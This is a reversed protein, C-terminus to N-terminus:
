MNTLPHYGYYLKIDDKSTPEFNSRLFRITREKLQPVSFGDYIVTGAPIQSWKLDSFQQKVPLTKISKLQIPAALADKNFNIIVEAQGIPGRWSAGTHLVYGTQKYIGNENTVQQGPNLTYVDRVVLENDAPFKVTKEHWFLGRDSTPILRTPVNKGNVYSQYSLFTAKLKSLPPLPEGQYPEEAGLGQDPFGMRVTCAPGSNQFVFKCDVTILKDKIDIQVVENKMSVSPHGKLLHPSGGLSIGGDDALAGASLLSLTLVILPALFTNKNQM